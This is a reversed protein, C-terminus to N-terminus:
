LLFAMIVLPMKVGSEVNVREHVWVRFKNMDLNEAWNRVAAAEEAGGEHGPYCTISIAGGRKILTEAQALSELTDSANTTISKDSGPLFGLNYVMLSIQGKQAVVEAPFPNFSGQIFTVRNMGKSTLYSSLRKKTEDIAKAQVDISFLRSTGGSNCGIIRALELSDYGNGATCDVAISGKTAASRWLLHALDIHSALPSHRTDLQPPHASSPIEGVKLSYDDGRNPHRLNLIAANVAARAEKVSNLKQQQSLTKAQVDKRTNELIQLASAHVPSSSAQTRNTKAEASSTFNRDAGSSYSLALTSRRPTSRYSIQLPEFARVTTLGLLKVLRRTGQM